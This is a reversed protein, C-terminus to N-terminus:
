FALTFLGISLFLFCVLLAIFIIIELVPMIVSLVDCGTCEIILGIIIVSLCLWGVALSVLIVNEIM